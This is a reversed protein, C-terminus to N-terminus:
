SEVVARERLLDAAPSLPAYTLIKNIREVAKLNDGIAQYLIVEAYLKDALSNLRDTVAPAQDSEPFRRLYEAGNDIDAFSHAIEELRATALRGLDADRDQLALQQVAALSTLPPPWTACASRGGAAGRPEAARGGLRAPLEAGRRAPRGAPRPRGGALLAARTAEKAEPWNSLFRELFATEYIEGDLLEVAKPYVDAAEGALDTSEKALTALLPSDPTLATVEATQAAYARIVAGYDRGLPLHALEADRLEHLKELRIKEAAAGRPWAALADDRVLPKM